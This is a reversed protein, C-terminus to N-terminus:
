KEPIQCHFAFVLKGFVNNSVGKSVDEKSEGAEFSPSSEASKTHEETLKVLVVSESTFAHKYIGVEVLLFQGSPVVCRGSDVETGGTSSQGLSRM